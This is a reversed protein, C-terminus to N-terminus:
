ETEPTFRTGEYEMEQAEVRLDGAENEFLEYTISIEGPYYYMLDLLEDDEAPLGANHCLNRTNQDDNAHVTFTLPLYDLVRGDIEDEVLSEIVSNPFVTTNSEEHDWKYNGDDQEIFVFRDAHRTNVVIKGNGTLVEYEPTRSM